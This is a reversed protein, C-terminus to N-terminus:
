IYIGVPASNKFYKQLEVCPIIGEYDCMTAIYSPIYLIIYQQLERNSIILAVADDVSTHHEGIGKTLISTDVVLVQLLM